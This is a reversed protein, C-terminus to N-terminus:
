GITTAAFERKGKTSAAHFAFLRLSQGFATETANVGLGLATEHAGPRSGFQLLSDISAVDNLVHVFDAM